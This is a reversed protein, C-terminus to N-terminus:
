RLADVRTALEQIAAVLVPILAGYDVLQAGRDDELVVEPVVDALEDAIFGLSSAGDVRRVFSRAQMKRVHALGYAAPRIRRKGRRDSSVTFASAYVPMYGTNSTNVVALHADTAVGAISGQGTFGVNSAGPMGGLVVLRSGLSPATVTASAAVSGCSVAGAGLSSCYIAGSFNAATGYIQSTFVNTAAAQLVFGSASLAEPDANVFASGDYSSSTTFAITVASLAGLPVTLLNGAIVAVLPTGGVTIGAYVSATTASTQNGVTISRIPGGVDKSTITLAKGMLNASVNTTYGQSLPGNM